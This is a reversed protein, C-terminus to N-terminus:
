DIRVIWYSIQSRLNEKEFYFICPQKGSCYDDCQLQHRRSKLSCVYSCLHTRPPVSTDNFCMLKWIDTAMFKPEKCKELTTNSCYAKQNSFYKVETLEFISRKFNGSDGLQQDAGVVSLITLMLIPFGAQKTIYIMTTLQIQKLSCFGFTVCM